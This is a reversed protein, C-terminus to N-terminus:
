RTVRLVRTEEENVTMTALDIAVGYGRRATELSVYGDIVDALVHDAPRELPSEFGGGGALDTGCVTEDDALPYGGTLNLYEDRSLVRGNIHAQAATGAGGGRLGFCPVRMRHASYGVIVPREWGPLRSFSVRAAAGGRQRGPGTSDTLYEKERVLVPAAVEFM